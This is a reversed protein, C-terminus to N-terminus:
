AVHSQVEIPAHRKRPTQRKITIDMYIGLADAIDTITSFTPNAGNGSLLRSVVSPKTGIRRALEAKSIEQARRADELANIIEATAVLKAVNREFAARKKDGKIHEGIFNAVVASQKTKEM